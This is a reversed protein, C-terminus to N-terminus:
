EHQEKREFLEPPIYTPKVPLDLWYVIDSDLQWSGNKFSAIRPRLELDIDVLVAYEDDVLPPIFSPIWQYAAPIIGVAAIARDLGSDYDALGCKGSRIADIAKQKYILEDM